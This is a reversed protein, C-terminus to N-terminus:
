VTWCHTPAGGCCVELGTLKGKFHLPTGDITCTGISAMPFLMALVAIQSRVIATQVEPNLNLISPACEQLVTNAANEMEYM